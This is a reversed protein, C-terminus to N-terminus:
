ATSACARVGALRPYPSRRATRCASGASGTDVCVHISMPRRDLGRGERPRRRGAYVMPTIDAQTPRDTGRSQGSGDPAAAGPHGRRPHGEAEQRKVVAFVRGGRPAVDWCGPWPSGAWATATTRSWPSSRSARPDGAGSGRRQPSPSCRAGRGVSQFGRARRDRPPWRDPAPGDHGPQRPRRRRDPDRTSLPAREPVIAALPSLGAPM